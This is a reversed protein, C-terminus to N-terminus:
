FPPQETTFCSWLKQHDEEIKHCFIETEKGSKTLFEKIERNQITLIHNRAKQEGGPLDSGLNYISQELHHKKSYMFCQWSTCMLKLIM